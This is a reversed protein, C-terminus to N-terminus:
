QRLFRDAKSHHVGVRLPDEQNDASGHVFPCNEFKGEYCGEYLQRRLDRYWEHNWIQDLPLDTVNLAPMRGYSCAQIAGTSLVKMEYFPDMCGFRASHQGVQPDPHADDHREDEELTSRFLTLETGHHAAIKKCRQLVMRVDDSEYINQDRVTEYFVILPQVHVYHIHVRSLMDELVLPLEHLNRRMLTYALGIRVDNSNARERARAMNLVRDRVVEYPVGRIAMNAATGDISIIAITDIGSAVISDAMSETLMLGNTNFSVPTGHQQCLELADLFHTAILPEGVINLHVSIADRIWPDLREIVSLPMDLEPGETVLGFDKPCHICTLNCRPTLELFIQRPTTQM